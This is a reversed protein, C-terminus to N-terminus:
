NHTKRIIVTNFISNKWNLPETETIKLTREKVKTLQQDKSPSIKLKEMQFNILKLPPKETFSVFFSTLLIQRRKLYCM